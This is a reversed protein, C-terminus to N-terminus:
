NIQALNNAKNICIVIPNNNHKDDGGGNGPQKNDSNDENSAQNKINGQNDTTTQNNTNGNIVQNATNGHNDSTTQNLSDGHSSDTSPKNDSNQDYSSQKYTNDLPPNTCKNLQNIRQDVKTSSGFSGWALAQQKPITFAAATLALAVAIAAIAMNKRNM